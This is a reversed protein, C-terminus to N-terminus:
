VCPFIHVDVSVTHICIIWYKLSKNRRVTIGTPKKYFLEDDTKTTLHKGKCHKLTACPKVHM